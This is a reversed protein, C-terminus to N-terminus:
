FEATLGGAQWLWGIEKRKSSSTPEYSCRKRSRKPPWSCTMTLCSMLVRSYFTDFDILLVSILCNSIELVIEYISNERFDFNLAQLIALIATKKPELIASDSHCCFECIEVSHLLFWLKSKSLIDRSTVWFVASKETLFWNESKTM